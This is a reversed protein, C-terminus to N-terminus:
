CGRAINQAWQVHSNRDVVLCVARSDTDVVRVTTIWGDGGEEGRGGVWGKIHSM